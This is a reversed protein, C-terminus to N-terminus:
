CRIAKEKMKRAKQRAAEADMKKCSGLHVNRTRNGERWSAMWYAYIQTGKKGKKSKKMQWVNLDELRAQLKLDEAEALAADAEEKLRQAEHRAAPIRSAKQLARADRALGLAEAKLAKRREGATTKHM